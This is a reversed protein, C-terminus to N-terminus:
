FDFCLQIANATTEKTDSPIFLDLMDEKCLLASSLIRMVEVIPRELHLDEEIIGVLCYTIIAIHIQLRVANDTEGWFTKVRLHQKIWKFFM